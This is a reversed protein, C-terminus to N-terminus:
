EKLAEDVVVGWLWEFDFDLDISNGPADAADEQFREARKQMGDTPERMAEIAAKAAPARLEWEWFVMDVDGDTMERREMPNRSEALCIAKAVREIMESM